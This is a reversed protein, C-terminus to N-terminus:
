NAKEEKAQHQENHWAISFSSSSRSIDIFTTVFSQFLQLAFWFLPSSFVSFRQDVSGHGNMDKKPQLDSKAHIPSLKFFVNFKLEFKIKNRILIWNSKM